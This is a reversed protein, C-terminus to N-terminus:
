ITSDIESSLGSTACASRGTSQFTNGGVGVLGGWVWFGGGLSGDAGFDVAGAGVHSSAGLVAVGRGVRLSKEELAGVWDGVGAM